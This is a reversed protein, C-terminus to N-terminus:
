DLPPRRRLPCECGLPQALRLWTHGSGRPQPRRGRGVVRLQRAQRSQREGGLSLASRRAGLVHPHRDRGTRHSGGGQHGGVLLVRARQEPLGPPRREPVGRGQGGRRHRRLRRLRAGSRQRRIGRVGGGGARHRGSGPTPGPEPLLRHRLGAPDHRVSVHDVDRERVGGGHEAPAPGVSSVDRGSGGAGLGAVEPRTRRVHGFGRVRRDRAGEGGPFRGRPRPHTGRDGRPPHRDASTRRRSRRPRCQRGAGGSRRM